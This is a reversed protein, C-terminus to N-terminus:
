FASTPERGGERGGDRASGLYIINHRFRSRAGKNARDITAHSVIRQRRIFFPVASAARPIGGPRRHRGRPRRSCRCPM